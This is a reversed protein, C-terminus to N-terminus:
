AGRVVFNAPSVSAITLPLLAAGSPVCSDPDYPKTIAKTFLARSCQIQLRMNHFSVEKALKCDLAVHQSSSPGLRSPVIGSQDESLYERSALLGGVECPDSGLNWRVAGVLFRTLHESTLM